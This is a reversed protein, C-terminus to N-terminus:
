AEENYEHKGEIHTVREEVQIRFIHWVTPMHSGNNNNTHASINSSTSLDCPGFLFDRAVLVIDTLCASKEAHPETLMVIVIFVRVVSGLEGLMDYVFAM